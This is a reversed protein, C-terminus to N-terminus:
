GGKIKGIKSREDLIVNDMEVRGEIEGIESAHDLLVDKMTVSGPAPPPPPTTDQSTSSPTAAPTKESPPVPAELEIRAGEKGAEARAKQTRDILRALQPRFAVILIILVLVIWFWPSTLLLQIPDAM